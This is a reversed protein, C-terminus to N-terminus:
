PIHPVSIAYPAIPHATSLYHITSGALRSGKFSAGVACRVAAYAIDTGSMAYCARLSAYCSVWAACRVTAHGMDTGSMAYPPRLVITYSIALLVGSFDLRAFDVGSLTCGALRMSTGARRMETSPAAGAALLALLDRRSFDAGLRFKSDEVQWLGRNRPGPDPDRPPLTSFFFPPPFLNPESVCEERQYARRARALPGVSVRVQKQGAVWYLVNTGSTLYGVNAGRKVRPLVSNLLDVRLSTASSPLPRHSILSM